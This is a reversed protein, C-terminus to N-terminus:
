EQYDSAVHIVTHCYDPIVFTNDITLQRFSCSTANDNEHLCKETSHLYFYNEALLFLAHGCLSCGCILVVFDSSRYFCCCSCVRLLVLM